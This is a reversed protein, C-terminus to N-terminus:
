YQNIKLEVLVPFHDSYGGLYRTGAYTRFPKGQYKGDRTKLDNHAFIEAKAFNLSFGPHYFDESLIIQDFLLGQRSYFTSYKRENYLKIFPNEMIKESGDNHLLYHINEAYPNENFDGMIVVSEQKNKILDSTIEKVQNLIYDRKPQNIGEERKSPLHLVFINIIEDRYGIKCQLIDRTTDMEDRGNEEFEFIFSLTDSDLIEVKTKDYLLATDVGREDLSDYHVFGYKGEFLPIQVLDELVSNDAIEALGILFPLDGKQNKLLEFIYAFRQIKHRYRWENWKKLGSIKKSEGRFFREDPPFLNEVNYFVLFEKNNEGM